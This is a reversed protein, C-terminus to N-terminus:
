GDARRLLGFSILAGIAMGTALGGMHSGVSVAQGLATVPSLLSPVYLMAIGVSRIVARRTLPALQVRGLTLVIWAGFLGAVAGSSGVIMTGARAFAVAAIGGGIASAFYIFGTRAYRLEIV